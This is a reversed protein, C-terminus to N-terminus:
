QAPKRALMLVSHGFRAARPRAGLTDLRAVVRQLRPSLRRWTYTVAYFEPVLGAGRAEKALARPSLPVDDPTGHLATGLGLGNALALGLGVPHYLNPEITVLAGGSKLLTAAERFCGALPQQFVVHHLVLRYLVVDFSASPLGLSGAYGVLGQDARGEALVADVKYGDADAGVLTFAPSPFLERGPNWGCGVSLVRGSSIGLRRDLLTRERESQYAYFRELTAESSLRDLLNNESYPESAPAATSSDSM